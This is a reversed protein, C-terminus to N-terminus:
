WVMILNWYFWKEVENVIRRVQEEYSETNYHMNSDENLTFLRRKNLMGDTIEIKYVSFGNQRSGVILPHQENIESMLDELGLAVTQPDEIHVKTQKIDSSLGVNAKLKQYLELDFSM